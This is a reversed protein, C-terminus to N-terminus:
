DEKTLGLPIEKEKTQTIALLDMQIELLYCQQMLKLSMIKEM